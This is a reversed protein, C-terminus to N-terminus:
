EPGGLGAEGAPGTGARGGGFQVCCVNNDEPKHRQTTQRLCTEAFRRYVYVLSCPTMSWVVTFKM